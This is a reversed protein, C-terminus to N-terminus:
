FERAFRDDGPFVPYGTIRDIEGRPVWTYGSQRIPIPVAGPLFSHPFRARARALHDRNFQLQNAYTNYRSQLRTAAPVLQNVLNPSLRPLDRGQVAIRDALVGPLKNRLLLRVSDVDSPNTYGGLIKKTKRAKRKKYRRTKM